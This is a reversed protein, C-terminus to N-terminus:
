SNAGRNLFAAIAIIFADSSDSAKDSIVPFISRVLLLSVFLPMFSLILFVFCDNWNDLLLILLLFPLFMIFLFPM